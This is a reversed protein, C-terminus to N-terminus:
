DAVICGPRNALNSDFCARTKMIDVVWGISMVLPMINKCQEDTQTNSCTGRTHTHSRIHQPLLMRESAQWRSRTGRNTYFQSHRYRHRSFNVPETPRQTVPVSMFGYTGSTKVCSMASMLRGFVGFVRSSFVPQYSM